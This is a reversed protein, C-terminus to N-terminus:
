REPWYDASDRDAPAEYEDAGCAIAAGGTSTTVVLCRKKSQYREPVSVVYLRGDGRPLDVAHDVTPPGSPANRTAAKARAEQRAVAKAAKTEPSEYNWAYIGAFLALIVGWGVIWGPVKNM